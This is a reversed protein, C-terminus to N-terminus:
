ASGETKTGFDISIVNGEVGSVLVKPKKVEKDYDEMFDEISEIVSPHEELYAVTCAIIQSLHMMGQYSESDLPNEKDTMIVVELEGTWNNEENTKPILNICFAEPNYIM